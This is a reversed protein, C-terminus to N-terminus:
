EDDGILVELDSRVDAAIDVCTRLATTDQDVSADELLKALTCACGAIRKIEAAREAPTGLILGAADDYGRDWEALLRLFEERPAGAHCIGSDIGREYARVINGRYIERWKDLLDKSKPGSREVACERGDARANQEATLYRM